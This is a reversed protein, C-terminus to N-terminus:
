KPEQACCNENASVGCNGGGGPNPSMYSPAIPGGPYVVDRQLGEPRFAVSVVGILWFWLCCDRFFLLNKSFAEYKLIILM